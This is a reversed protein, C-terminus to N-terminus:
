SYQIIFLYINDVNSIKLIQCSLIVIFFCVTAIAVAIAVTHKKM